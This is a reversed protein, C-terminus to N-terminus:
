QSCYAISDVYARNQNESSERDKTPRQVSTDSTRRVQFLIENALVILLVGVRGELSLIHDEFEFVLVNRRGQLDFWSKEV